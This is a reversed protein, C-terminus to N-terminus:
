RVKPLFVGVLKVGMKVRNCKRLAAKCARKATLLFDVTVGTKNIARSL